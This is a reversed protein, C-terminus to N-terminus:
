EERDTLGIWLAGGFGGFTSYIWRDEDANRVTALHGGLQVAQAEANSWTNQSILYYSHGNAHNIIPGALIGSSASKRAVNPNIAAISPGTIEQSSVQYYHPNNQPTYTATLDLTHEPKVSSDPRQM